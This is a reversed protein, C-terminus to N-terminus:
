LGPSRYERPLGRCHNLGCVSGVCGVVSSAESLYCPLNKAMVCDSWVGRGRRSVASAAAARAPAVATVISLAPLVRRTLWLTLAGLLLYIASFYALGFAVVQYWTLDLLSVHTM